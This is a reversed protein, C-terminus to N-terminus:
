RLRLPESAETGAGKKAAAERHGGPREDCRMVASVPVGIRASLGINRAAVWM